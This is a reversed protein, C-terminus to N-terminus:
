LCAREPAFKEDLLLCFYLMYKLVIIFTPWNGFVEVLVNIGWAWGGGLAVVLWWLGLIIETWKSSGFQWMLVISLVLSSVWIISVFSSCLMYSASSSSFKSSTISLVIVLSYNYYYSFYDLDQGCSGMVLFSSLGWLQGSCHGLCSWQNGMFKKGNDCSVWLHVCTWSCGFIGGLNVVCFQVSSLVVVHEGVCSHKSVYHRYLSM